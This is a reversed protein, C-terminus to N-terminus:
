VNVCPLVSNEWLWLQLLRLPPSTTLIKKMFCIILINGKLGYFVLKTSNPTRQLLMVNTDGM